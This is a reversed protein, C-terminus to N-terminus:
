QTNNYILVTKISQVKKLTMKTKLNVSFCTEQTGGNVSVTNALRNTNWLISFKTRQRGAPFNCDLLLLLCMFSLNLGDLSALNCPM